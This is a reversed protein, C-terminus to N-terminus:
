NSVGHAAGPRSRGTREAWRGRTAMGDRAAAAAPGDSLSMAGGARPEQRFASWRSLVLFMVVFPAIGLAQALYSGIGLGHILGLVVTLNFVYSFIFTTLFRLASALPEDGDGFTWSRNLAFGVGLGVGYGAANAVIDGAGLGAKATFIATLGALASGAGIVLVRQGRALDTGSGAM